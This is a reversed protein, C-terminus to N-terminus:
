GYVSGARHFSTSAGFESGSQSGAAPSHVVATKVDLTYSSCSASCAVVLAFVKSLVRLEFVDMM